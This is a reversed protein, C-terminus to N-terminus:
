APDGASKLQQLHRHALATSFCLSRRALRWRRMYSGLTGAGPASLTLKAAPVAAFIQSFGGLKIPVVVVVVLVVV